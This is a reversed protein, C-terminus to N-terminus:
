SEFLSLSSRALLEKSAILGCRAQGRPAFAVNCGAIGVSQFWTSRCNSRSGDAWLHPENWGEVNKALGESSIFDFFLPTEM